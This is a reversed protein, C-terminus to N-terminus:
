ASSPMRSLRPHSSNLRPEESRDRDHKALRVMARGAESLEAGDASLEEIADGYVPDVTREHTLTALTASHQARAARGKRSCYTQEDWGLLGLTASLDEIERMRAEFTVWAETAM